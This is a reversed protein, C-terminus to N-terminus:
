GSRNVLLNNLGRRLRESAAQDSIGFDDALGSLTIRRPVEFYGNEVAMALLERQCETMERHKEPSDDGSHLGNLTFPIEREICHTRYAVLADRDPFRMRVRWGESTAESELLAGGLGSWAWYTTEEASLRLQCLQAKDSGEELIKVSSVMECQGLAREFAEFNVNAVWLTMMVREPDCATVDELTLRIEPFREMLDRYGPVEITYEAIISM